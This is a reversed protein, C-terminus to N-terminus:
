LIINAIFLCDFFIFSILLTYIVTHNKVYYRRSFILPSLSIWFGKKYWLFDNLFFIMQKRHCIKNSHLQPIIYGYFVQLQTCVWRSMAQRSLFHHGPLSFTMLQNQVWLLQSTFSWYRMTLYVSLYILYYSIFVVLYELAFLSFLVHVKACKCTNIPSQRRPADALVPFFGRSLSITFQVVEIGFNQVARTCSLTLLAFKVVLNAAKTSPYEFAWQTPSALSRLKVIAFPSLTTFNAQRVHVHTLAILVHCHFRKLKVTSAVVVFNKNSLWDQFTYACVHTRHKREESVIM